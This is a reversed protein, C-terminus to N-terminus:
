FRENLKKYRRKYGLAWLIRKFFNMGEPEKVFDILIIIKKGYTDLQNRLDNRAIELEKIKKDIESDAKISDLKPTGHFNFREGPRKSNKIADWEEMLTNFFIANGGRDPHLLKSFIRFIEQAEVNTKCENFFMDRWLFLAMPCVPDPPGFGVASLM